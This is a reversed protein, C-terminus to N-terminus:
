WLKKGGGSQTESTNQGMRCFFMGFSLMWPQQVGKVM